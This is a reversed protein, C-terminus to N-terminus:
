KLSPLLDRLASEVLNGVGSIDGSGDVHLIPVKQAEVGTLFSCIKQEFMTLKKNWVEMRDDSRGRQSLRKLCEERSVDLVIVAEMADIMGAKKMLTVDAADWPQGDLVVKEAGVENVRRMVAKVLESVPVMSGDKTYEAFEERCIQGVSLAVRGLKSALLEAQTSKGSGAPGYIVIM